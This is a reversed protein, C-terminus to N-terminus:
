RSRAAESRPSLAIRLTTAGDIRVAREQTAYGDKTIRVRKMGGPLYRITVPTAGWGVGDVTVIAGAPTTTIVLRGDAAAHPKETTVVSAPAVEPARTKAPLARPIAPSPTTAALSPRTVAPSPKSVALAPAPPPVAKTTSAPVTKAPAAATPVAKATPAPVAKAAVVAEPTRPATWRLGVAITVAVIALWLGTLVLLQRRRPHRRRPLPPAATLVGTESNRRAEARMYMTQRAAM